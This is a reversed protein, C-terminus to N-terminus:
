FNIFQAIKINCSVLHNKINSQYESFYLIVKTIGVQVNKLRASINNIDNKESEIM